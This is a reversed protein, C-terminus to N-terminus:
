KHSELQKVLNNELLHIQMLIFDIINTKNVEMSIVSFLKKTM